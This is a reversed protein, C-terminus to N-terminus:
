KGMGLLNAVPSYRRPFQRGKAHISALMGIQSDGLIYAPPWQIPRGLLPWLRPLGPINDQSRWFEYNVHGTLRMVLLHAHGMVFTQNTIYELTALDSYGGLWHCHEDLPHWARGRYCSAFVCWRGPPLLTEKLKAREEQSIPIPSKRGAEMIMTKMVAWVALTSQADETLEFARGDILDLITRQARSELQSMWRNNCKQCVVRFKMSGLHGQRQRGLTIVPSARKDEHSGWDAGAQTLKQRGDRPFKVRLWNPFLHEKSMGGGGCFICSGSRKINPREGRHVPM